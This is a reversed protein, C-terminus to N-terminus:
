LSLYPANKQVLSLSRVVRIAVRDPIRDIPNSTPNCIAQSDQDMWLSQRLATRYRDIPIRTESGGCKNGNDTWDIQWCLGIRRVEALM